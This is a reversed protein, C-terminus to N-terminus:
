AKVVWGKGNLMFANHLASQMNYSFLAQGSYILNIGSSWKVCYMFM